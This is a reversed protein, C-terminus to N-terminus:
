GVLAAHDVKICRNSVVNLGAARAQSEIDEDFIGLQLWLTKARCAIADALVPPLDEPRRFVDVIDPEAPLDLLSKYVPQGMITDVTPNVLWVTYQHDM